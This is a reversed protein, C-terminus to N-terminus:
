SLIESIIADIHIQTTDLLPVKTDTQDILKTIETCGLIVAQAGRGSLDFIVKLYVDKSEPRCVGRCLENYIIDSVDQQADAGPVLTGIDYYSMYDKYFDLTMTYKTGLLGVKSFGKDRAVKATATALHLFPINISAMIDDAVKHMTNTALAIFDAGATELKKAEICLLDSQSQWDDQDKLDCFQQFNVSSLLIKASNQKGLKEAVGQNVGNYYEITSQPSLGGIIGITKM